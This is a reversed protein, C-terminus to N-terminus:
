SGSLRKLVMERKKEAVQIVDGNQLVVFGGDDRKYEIIYRVNVLHSRHVRVFVEESLSTAYFKLPKSVVHPREDNSYVTTYSGDAELRIVDEMELFRVGGKHPIPVKSKMLSLSKVLSLRHNQKEYKSTRRIHKNIASILEEPNIPKLIYDLAEYKIAKLAFNPHATVFIVDFDIRELVDLVEFGSGDIMEIDLFILEPRHEQIAKVGSIASTGYGLVNVDLDLQVLLNKLSRRALEEDDIIVSRISM